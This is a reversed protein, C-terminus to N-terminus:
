SLPPPIPPPAPMRQNKVKNTLVVTIKELKEIGQSYWRNRKHLEIAMELPIFNILYRKREAFGKQAEASRRNHAKFIAIYEKKNLKAKM